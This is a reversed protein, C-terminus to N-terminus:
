AGDSCGGQMRAAGGSCGRQMERQMEREIEREAVEWLVSKLTDRQERMKDMRAVPTMCPDAM